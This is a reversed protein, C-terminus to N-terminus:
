RKRRAAVAQAFASPKKRENGLKKAVREWVKAESRRREGLAAWKSELDLQSSLSALQRVMRDLWNDWRGPAKKSLLQHAEGLKQVAEAIFHSAALMAESKKLRRTM